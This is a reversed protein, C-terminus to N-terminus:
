PIPPGLSRAQQLGGGTTRPYAHSPPAGECTNAPFKKPQEGPHLKRPLYSRHCNRHQAIRGGMNCLMRSIQAIFHAPDRLACSLGLAGLKQGLAGSKRLAGPLGLASTCSQAVGVDGDCHEHAGGTDPPDHCLCGLIGHMAIFAQRPLCPGHRMALCMRPLPSSQM